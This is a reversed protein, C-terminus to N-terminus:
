GQFFENEIRKTLDYLEGTTHMERLIKEIKNAMHLHKKHLYHYLHLSVLPPSLLRINPFSNNMLMGDGTLRDIVMVEVRGADLMKFLQIPRVVSTVQMGVTGKEAFKMGITIGIEYSKLSKWGDLQIVRKAYVVGSFTSIPVDILILNPYTQQIGKIRILEGDIEGENSLFLGREM